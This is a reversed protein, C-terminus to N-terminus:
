KILASFLLPEITAGDYTIDHMECYDKAAQIISKDPNLDTTSIVWKVLDNIFSDVIKKQNANM